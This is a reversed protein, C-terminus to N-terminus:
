CRAGRVQMVTLPAIPGAGWRAKSGSQELEALAEDLAAKWVGVREDNALYAEAQVLAGYLYIDPHSELLWNTPESVSLSSIRRWYTMALTVGAAPAPALRLERGSIVYSEPQGPHGAYETPLTAPSTARLPRNPLGTISLSRMQLFDDPLISRETTVTTYGTEMEPTRLIRNFRAEALAIFDQVRPELDARDLWAAVKEVLDSYSGISGPLVIAVAIGM